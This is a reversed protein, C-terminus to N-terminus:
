RRGIPCGTGTPCMGMGCGRGGGPGMGMGMGAGPGMGMGGGGMPCMGMGLGCGMGCQGSQCSQVCKSRQEPSLVQALITYHLDIAKVHVQARIQDMEAAKAKIQAVDPDTAAWLKLMEQQKTQLQTRLTATDNMFATNLKQIDGIQSQSLGLVQQCNMPQNGQAMRGGMGRGQAMVGGVVAVLGLILICAVGIRKM